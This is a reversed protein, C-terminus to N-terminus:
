LMIFNTSLGCLSLNFHQHNYSEFLTIHSNDTCYICVSVSVIESGHIKTAYAMACERLIQAREKDGSKHIVQFMLNYTFIGGM